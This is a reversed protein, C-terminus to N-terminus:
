SIVHNGNGNEKLLKEKLKLENLDTSDFEEPVAVFLKQLFLNIEYM